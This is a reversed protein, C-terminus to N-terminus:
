LKTVVTNQQLHSQIPKLPFLSARLSHLFHLGLSSLPFLLLMICVKPKSATQQATQPTQM